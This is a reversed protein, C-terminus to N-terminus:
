HIVAIKRIVTVVTQPTEIEIQALYGGKSVKQGSDNTGDWLFKNEGARGGDAGASFSWRKVRHGLLDYLTVSVPLDSVLRYSIQTKGELGAKRTDFPNPANTVESIIEGPLPQMGPLHILPSPGRVFRDPEASALGFCPLLLLIGM